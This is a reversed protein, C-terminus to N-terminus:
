NPSDFVFNHEDVVKNQEENRKIHMDNSYYNTGNTGNCESEYKVVNAAEKVIKWSQHHGGWNQMHLRDKARARRREWESVDDM